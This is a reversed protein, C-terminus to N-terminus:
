KCRHVIRCQQKYTDRKECYKQHFERWHPRELRFEVRCLHAPRRLAETIIGAPRDARKEWGQDPTDALGGQREAGRDGEEASEGGAEHHHHKQQQRFGAPPAECVQLRRWRASRLAWTPPGRRSTRAPPRTCVSCFRPGGAM